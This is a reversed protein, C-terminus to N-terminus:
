QLRIELVGILKDKARQTGPVPAGGVESRASVGWSKPERLQDVVISAAVARASVRIV